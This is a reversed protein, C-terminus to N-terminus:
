ALPVGPCGSNSSLAMLKEAQLLSNTDQKDNKKIVWPFLWAKGTEADGHKYSVMLFPQSVKLVPVISKVTAQPCFSNM